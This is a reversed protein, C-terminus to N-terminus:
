AKKLFVAIAADNMGTLRDSTFMDFHEVSKELVLFMYKATM